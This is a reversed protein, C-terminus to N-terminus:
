QHRRESVVTGAVKRLGEFFEAGVLRDLPVAIIQAPCDLRAQEVADGPCKRGVIRPQHLHMPHVLLVIAVDAVLPPPLLQLGIEAEHDADAQGAPMTRGRLPELEVFERALVAVVLDADGRALGELKVPDDLIIDARRDLPEVLRQEVADRRAAVDIAVHHLRGVGVVATHLGLHGGDRAPDAVFEQRLGAGIM